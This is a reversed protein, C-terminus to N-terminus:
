KSKALVKNRIEDKLKRSIPISTGGISINGGQLSNIKDIAVIFSKQVKVFRIAPLLAEINKLSSYTIIKRGATHISVYNQHSEVFLIEDFLVKEMRGEARVFIHDIAIQDTSNKPSLLKQYELVKNVAKMFREWSIPKLLYDVVDLEFGELAYQHYATTLIIHCKKDMAKIFEM